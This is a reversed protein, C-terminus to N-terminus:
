YDDEAMKWNANYVGEKREYTFGEGLVESAPYYYFFANPDVKEIYARIQVYERYHVVSVILFKKEASFGGYVNYITSGRNIKDHIFANIEEFKETNINMVIRKDFGSIMQEMVVSQVYIGLISYIANQPGTFVAGLLVVMGDIIFMAVSLNVRLYRNMIMAVIDTGGTSANQTFVISLALGSLGAGVILMVTKDTMVPGKIPFLREFIIIWLSYSITGVITLLGFQKGLSLFGVIFLIINGLLLVSGVSWSPQIFNIAIAIGAVGGSAFANPSFFFHVSIALILGGLLIMAMRKINDRM